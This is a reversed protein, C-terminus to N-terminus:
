RGRNRNAKPGGQRRWLSANSPHALELLIQRRLGAIERKVIFLFYINLFTPNILPMNGEPTNGEEDDITTFAHSSPDHPPTAFKKEHCEPCLDFNPCVECHYRRGCIPETCGD